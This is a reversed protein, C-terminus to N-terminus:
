GDTVAVSISRLLTRNLREFAHELMIAVSPAHGTEMGEDKGLLAWSSFLDTTKEM